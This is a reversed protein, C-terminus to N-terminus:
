RRLETRQECDPSLELYDPWVGDCVAKQYREQSDGADGFDCTSVALFAAVIFIAGVTQSIKMNKSGCFLALAWAARVVSCARRRVDRVLLNPLPCWAGYRAGTRRKSSALVDGWRGGERHRGDDDTEGWHAPLGLM